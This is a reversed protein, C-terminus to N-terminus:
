PFKAVLKTITSTSRITFPRRLVRELPVTSFFSSGPKKRRLWYIERGHIRFEDTDTKLAMLKTKSREDLSEALLIINVDAGHTESNEFPEFAAIEKLEAHTRIFAPVNYGLAQQLRREVKKELTGVDRARTEFVVNGSGLFTAVGSFNLSEFAQRLVNM